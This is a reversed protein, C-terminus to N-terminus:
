AGKLSMLCTKMFFHRPQHCRAVAVQLCEGGEGVPIASRVLISSAQGPWVAETWCQALISEILFFICDRALSVALAVALASFHSFSTAAM